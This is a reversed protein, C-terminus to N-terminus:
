YIGLEPELGFAGSGYAFKQAKDNYSSLSAKAVVVVRSVPTVTNAVGWAEKQM